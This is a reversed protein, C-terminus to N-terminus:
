AGPSTIKSRIVNLVAAAVVRAVGGGVTVAWTQWDTVGQSAVVASLFFVAAATVAAWFIEEYFKIDYM